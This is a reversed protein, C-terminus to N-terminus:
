EFNQWDALVAASSLAYPHETGLVRNRLKVCEAMLKTAEMKRGLEKMTFALNNISTLTDPHEDGLVRQHNMFDTVILAPKGYEEELLWM